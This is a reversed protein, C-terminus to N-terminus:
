NKRNLLYLAFLKLDSLRDMLPEISNIAEECVKKAYEKAGEVGLLAPYTSKGLAIDRGINKGLTTSDSEIDLIDDVIQFLLGIKQSYTKLCKLEESTADALVAGSLISASLLAATKGLHIHELTKQDIKSNEYKLDLMQGGIVGRNTFADNAISVIKVIKEDSVGYEKLSAFWGFPLLMLCDGALVATSEGFVKHNTPKGRRLDDDDMCPLDDHILSASHYLEYACGTRYAAEGKFGLGEAVLVTLAPRIRKGGAMVSYRMAENLNASYEEEDRPLWKDLYCNVKEAIIAIKGLFQKIQEQEM